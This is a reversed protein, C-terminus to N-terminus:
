VRTPQLIFSIEQPNAEQGIITYAITVELDNTDPPHDVKVNTLTVRPEFNNISTEIQTRITSLLGNDAQEFLSQNIFSGILSNFPREENITEVLNRVSRKIASEDTLSILDNTVPHRKFSLSIDKFRRSQRIVPM